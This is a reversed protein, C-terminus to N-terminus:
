NRRIQKLALAQKNRQHRRFEEVEQFAADVEQPELNSMIAGVIGRGGGRGGGHGTATAAPQVAAGAGYAPMYLETPMTRGRVHVTNHMKAQHAEKEVRFM